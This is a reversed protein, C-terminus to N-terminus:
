QFREKMSRVADHHALELRKIKDYRPVAAEGKWLKKVFSGLKYRRSTIYIAADVTRCDVQTAMVTRKALEQAYAYAGRETTTDFGFTFEGQKSVHGASNLTSVAGTPAELIGM